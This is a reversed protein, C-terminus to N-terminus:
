LQEAEDGGGGQEALREPSAEEQGGPASASRAGTGPTAEGQRAYPGQSKIRAQKTMKRPGSGEAPDAVPTPQSVEAEQATMQTAPFGLSGALEKRLGPGQGPPFAEFLRNLLNRQREAQGTVLAPDPAQQSPSPAGAGEKAAPSWAQHLSQAVQLEEQDKALLADQHLREAELM